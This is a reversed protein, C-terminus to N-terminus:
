LLNPTLVNERCASASLICYHVRNRFICNGFCLYSFSTRFLKCGNITDFGNCLYSCYCSCRKSHFGKVFSGFRGSLDKERFAICRGCEWKFVTKDSVGIKEALEKQTLGMQNRVQAIFKGIKENM